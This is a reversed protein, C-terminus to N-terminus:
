LAKSSFYLVTMLMPVSDSMCYVYGFLRGNSFWCCVAAFYFPYSHSVLYSSLQTFAYKQECHRQRGSKDWSNETSHLRGGPDGDRSVFFAANEM